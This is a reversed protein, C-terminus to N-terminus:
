GGVLEGCAIWATSPSSDFSHAFAVRFLLPHHRSHSTPLSVSIEISLDVMKYSPFSVFEITM